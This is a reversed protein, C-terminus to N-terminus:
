FMRSICFGLLLSIDSKKSIFERISALSKSMQSKVTSISVGLEKSIMKYSMEENRSMEFIRKRKPSLRDIADKKLDNYVDELLKAEITNVSEERKYFIEERLKVDNSAKNLFNFVLNRAITFIYSKFSLDPNITHRHLWVKIFVEQVIDEAYENHNLLSRSYFFIDDKYIEFLKRFAKEDGSIMEEILKKEGIQM